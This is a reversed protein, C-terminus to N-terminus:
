FAENNTRNRWADRRLLKGQQGHIKMVCLEFDIKHQLGRFRVNILIGM